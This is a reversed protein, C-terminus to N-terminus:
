GRKSSTDATATLSLMHMTYSTRGAPHLSFGAITVTGQDVPRFAHALVALLLCIIFADCCISVSRLGSLTIISLYTISSM